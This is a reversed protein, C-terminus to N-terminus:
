STVPFHRGCAGFSALTGVLRVSGVSGVSGLRHNQGVGLFQKAFNGVGLFQRGLDIPRQRHRSLLLHGMPLLPIVAFSKSAHTGGEISSMQPLLWSTRYQFVPM